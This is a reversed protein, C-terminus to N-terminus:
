HKNYTMFYIISTCNFWEVVAVKPVSSLPWEGGGRLFFPRQLSIATLPPEVTIMM